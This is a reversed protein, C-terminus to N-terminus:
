NKVPSFIIKWFIMLHNEISFVFLVTSPYITHASYPIVKFILLIESLVRITGIWTPTTSENSKFSKKCEHIGCVLRFSLTKCILFDLSQTQRFKNQRYVCSTNYLSRKMQNSKKCKTWTSIKANPAHVTKSINVSTVLRRSIYPLWNYTLSGPIVNVM